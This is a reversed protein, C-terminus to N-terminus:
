SRRHSGWDVFATVQGVTSTSTLTASRGAIIVKDLTYNMQLAYPLWGSKTVPQLLRGMLLTDGQCALSGQTHRNQM